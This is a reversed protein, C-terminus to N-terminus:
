WRNCLLNQLSNAFFFLEPALVLFEEVGTITNDPFSLFSKKVPHADVVYDFIYECKRWSSTVIWLLLICPTICVM